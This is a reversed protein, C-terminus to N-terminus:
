FGKRTPFERRTPQMATPPGAPSNYRDYPSVAPPTVPNNYRKSPDEFIPGRLRDQQKNFATTPDDQRAGNLRPAGITPMAMNGPRAQSAVVVPQLSDPQKAAPGANPNILQEFAARRQLQAATPKEKPKPLATDFMSEPRAPNFRGEDRFSFSERSRPDLGRADQRRPLGTTPDTPSWNLDTVPSLARPQGPRTQGALEEMVSSPPRVTEPGFDRGSDKKKHEDPDSFMKPTRLLWHRDDRERDSDRETRMIPQQQPPPVVIPQEFDAPSFDMAKVRPEPVKGAARSPAALPVVPKSFQIPEGALAVTAAACAGVLASLRMLLRPQCDNKMWNQRRRVILRAEPRDFPM